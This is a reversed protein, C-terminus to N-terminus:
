GADAGADVSAAPMEGGGPDVLVPWYRPNDIFRVIVDLEDRPVAATGSRRPPMTGDRMVQILRSAASELPVVYGQEILRDLDDIFGIGGLAEDGLPPGHCAGCYSLLINRVQARALDYESIYPEETSPPPQVTPPTSAPSSPGTVAPASPQASSPQASSPRAPSPQPAGSFAPPPASPAQAMEAESAAKGGCGLAGALAFGATCRLLEPIGM